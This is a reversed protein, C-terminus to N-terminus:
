RRIVLRGTHSSFQQNDLMTKVTYLYLGPALGDVALTTSGSSTSLEYAGVARGVPDTLKMIAYGDQLVPHSVVVKSSAPNPQVTTEFQASLKPGATTFASVASWASTDIVGCLSRMRFEYNTGSLLDPVMEVTGAAFRSATNTSGAKWGELEYGIANDVPNWIIRAGDPVVHTVTIGTPTECSELEVQMTGFANVKGYGWYQNPLDTGTFSDSRATQLIADKVERWDAEPYRELYLAAIGAVIPSSFSTGGQLYHQGGEGMYTASGLGILWSTMASSGTGMIWQGSASIDPKVRFDRTPGNSSSNIRQGPTGSIPPNAGYYNTLTDRNYYSGVSIVKDSNQWSSVMTMQSDPKVYRAIEPYSAADPLDSNTPMYSTGTYFPDTWTDFRGEGTTYFGWLLDNDTPFVVLEFVYRDDDLMGWIEIEGLTDTGSTLTHTFNTWSTTFSLAETLTWWPSRALQTWSSPDDASVSFQFGSFDATDAWFQTYVAGLSAEYEFWTFATDTSAEYGLHFPINGANGCAAVVVRGPAAELLGDILEATLDNGDHSGWYTGVSTNIVCPKGLADAKDFIYSIADTVNTLFDVGFDLNVIVLDAQPAVGPYRGTSSGDGAAIGAVGSGHSYFGSPDTHACSSAEIAASDCEQGFGFPAPATGDTALTQDWIYKIRTYGAADRFDEHTPDIGLDIVGVVVDKGTYAQPLPAAGAHVSDVRSRILMVDGLVHGKIGPVSVREIGPYSGILTASGAPLKVRYVDSAGYLIIGELDQTATYVAAKDGKVLLSEFNPDADAAASSLSPRQGFVIASAVTLLLCLVLRHTSYRNLM